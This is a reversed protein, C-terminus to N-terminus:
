KKSKKQCKKKKTLAWRNYQHDLCHERFVYYEEVEREPIKLNVMLDLAESFARKETEWISRRRQPTLNSESEGFNLHYEFACNPTKLFDLIHGLEHFLLFCKKKIEMRKKIYIGSILIMEDFVYYSLAADYPDKNPLEGVEFVDLTVAFGYEKAMEDVVYEIAEDFKKKWDVKKM